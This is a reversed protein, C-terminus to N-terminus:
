TKEMDILRKCVKNVEVDEVRTAKMAKKAFM